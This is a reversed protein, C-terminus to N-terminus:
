MWLSTLNIKSTFEPLVKSWKM